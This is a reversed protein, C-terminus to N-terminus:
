LAGDSLRCARVCGLQDVIERMDFDLNTMEERELYLLRASLRFTEVAAARIPQNAAVSIRLAKLKLVLDNAARVVNETTQQM